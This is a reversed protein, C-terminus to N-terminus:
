RVSRTRAAVVRPIGAVDNYIRPVEPQLPTPGKMLLESVYPAQDHGTELLLLGEPLLRPLAAIIRRYIGLGDPGGDLALHPDYDRVSPALGRIDESPIYPPNAVVLDFPGEAGASLDTAVFACRNALGLRVANRAAVDLADQSVDTAVANAAPLEALLTLAICGTGTGLDLIRLPQARAEPGLLELAADILTETDPRPDLTAPTVEFTRGYFEREGAIRSLPEHRVRRAVFAAVRSLDEDTIPTDSRSVVESASLGLAARLLWRAESPADSLGAAALARAVQRTTEALTGGPIPIGRM